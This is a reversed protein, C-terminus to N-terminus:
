LFDVFGNKVAVAAVRADVRGMLRLLVGVDGYKKSLPILWSLTCDFEFLLFAVWYDEEILDCFFNLIWKAGGVDNTTIGRSFVELLIELIRRLSLDLNRCTRSLMQLLKGTVDSQYFGHEVDWVMYMCTIELIEETPTVVTWDGFLAMADLIVKAHNRARQSKEPDDFIRLLERTLDWPLMPLWGVDLRSPKLNRLVESLAWLGLWKTREVGLCPVLSLTWQTVSSSNGDKLLGTRFLEATTRTAAM